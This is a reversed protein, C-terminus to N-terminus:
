VSFSFLNYFYLHFHKQKLFVSWRQAPRGVGAAGAEDGEKPKTEDGAEDRRWLYKGSRYPVTGENELKEEESRKKKSM